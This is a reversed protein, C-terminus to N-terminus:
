AAVQVPFAVVAAKRQKERLKARGTEISIVPALERTVTQEDDAMISLLVELFIRRIHLDLMKPTLVFGTAADVAKHPLRKHTWAKRSEVQEQYAYVTGARLRNKVPVSADAYFHLCLIRERRRNWIGVARKNKIVLLAKVQSYRDRRLIGDPGFAKVSRDQKVQRTHVSVASAATM